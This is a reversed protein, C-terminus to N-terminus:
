KRQMRLSFARCHRANEKVAERQVLESRQVCAWFFAQRQPSREPARHLAIWAAPIEESALQDMPM